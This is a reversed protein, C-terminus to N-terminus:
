LSTDKELSSLITLIKEDDLKEIDKLTTYIQSDSTYKKNNLERDQIKLDTFLIYKNILQEIDQDTLNPLCMDEVIKRTSYKDQEIKYKHDIAVKEKVLFILYLNWIAVEDELTSQFDIAITNNLEEWNALLDQENDYIKIFIYIPRLSEEKWCSLNLSDIDFKSEDINCKKM